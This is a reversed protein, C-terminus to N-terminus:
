ENLLKPSMDIYQNSECIIKGNAISVKGCPCKVNGMEVESIVAGCGLCQAKKTIKM